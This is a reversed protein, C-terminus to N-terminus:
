VNLAKYLAEVVNKVAPSSVEKALYKEIEIDQDFENQVNVLIEAFLLSDIDLNQLTSDLKVEHLYTEKKIVAILVEQVEKYSIKESIISNM